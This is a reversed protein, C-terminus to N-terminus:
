ADLGAAVPTHLRLGTRGVLRDRIAGIPVPLATTSPPETLLRTALVTAGTLLALVLLAALWWARRGGPREHRGPGHWTTDDM